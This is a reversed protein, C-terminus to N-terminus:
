IHFGYQRSNDKFIFVMNDPIIKIYKFLIDYCPFRYQLLPVFVKVYYKRLLSLTNNGGGGREMGLVFVRVLKGYKCIKVNYKLNDHKNQTCFINIM